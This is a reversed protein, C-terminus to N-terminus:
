LVSKKAKNRKPAEGDGSIAGEGSAEGDDSTANDAGSKGGDFSTADADSNDKMSEVDEMSEDQEESYGEDVPVVRGRDREATAEAAAAAAAAKEADEAELRAKMEESLEIKEGRHKKKKVKTAPDFLDAPPFRPPKDRKPGGRPSTRRFRRFLRGQDRMTIPKSARPSYNDVDRNSWPREVGRKPAM